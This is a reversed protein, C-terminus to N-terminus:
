NDSRTDAASPTVGEPIIQTAGFVVDFCCCDGQYCNTTDLPLSWAWGVYYNTGPQANEILTEPLNTGLDGLKGSYLTPEATQQINDGEHPDEDTGQWGEIDGEDLWLVVDIQSCLDDQPVWTHTADSTCVGNSWVGGECQCEAETVPSPEECADINAM